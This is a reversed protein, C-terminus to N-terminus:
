LCGIYLLERGEIVHHMQYAIHVLRQVCALEFITAAVLVLQLGEPATRVQMRHGFCRTKGLHCFRSEGAKEGRKLHVLWVGM